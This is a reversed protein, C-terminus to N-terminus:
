KVREYIIKESPKSIDVVIYLKDGEVKLPFDITKNESYQRTFEGKDTNLCKWIGKFSLVDGNSLEGNEKFTGDTNFNITTDYKVLWNGGGGRWAGVIKYCGKELLNEAKNIGDIALRDGPNLILAESYKNIALDKDWNILAQEAETILANYKAKKEEEAKRQQELEVLKAEEEQRQRELEALRAKEAKRKVEEEVKRKEEAKRKTEAEAKQKEEVEQQEIQKELIELEADTVATVSTLHGATLILSIILSHTTKSKM